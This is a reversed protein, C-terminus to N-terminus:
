KLAVAVRFGVNDDAIAFEIPACAFRNASRCADEDDWWSGGRLVRGKGDGAGVPDTTALDRYSDQFWDSCWEMVNGYMDFLGWGNPKKQGVPHTRRRSNKDFWAYKRLKKLDDGFFFRTKSGARCAYEWEAETPLRVTKGTKQSLRKCFQVANGWTVMEVPNSLGSFHSPNEGMIAGYQEMTVETVGLYFPKTIKVRRQPGEISFHGAESDPSGMIFEGAPILVLEMTVNSSLNLSMSEKLDARKSYEAITEKGDWMPPGLRGKLKSNLMLVEERRLVTAHLLVLRHQRKLAEPHQWRLSEHPLPDSREETGLSANNSIFSLLGCLVITHGSYEPYETELFVTNGDQLTLTQRSPTSNPLRPRTTPNSLRGEVFVITGEAELLQKYDRSPYIAVQGAPPMDARDVTCANTVVCIGILWLVKKKV